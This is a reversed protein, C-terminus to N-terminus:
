ALHAHVAELRRFIPHNVVKWVLLPSNDIAYPYFLRDEGTQNAFENNTTKVLVQLSYAKKSWVPEVRSQQLGMESPFCFATTALAQLLESMELIRQLEIVSLQFEAAFLYHLEM